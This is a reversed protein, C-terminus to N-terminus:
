KTVLSELGHPSNSLHLCCRDKKYLEIKRETDEAVSLAMKGYSRGLILAMGGFLIGTLHQGPPAEMMLYMGCAISGAHLGEFGLAFITQAPMEMLCEKLTVRRARSTTLGEYQPLFYDRIKYVLSEKEEDM